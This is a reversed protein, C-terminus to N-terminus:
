YFRSKETRIRLIARDLPFYNLELGENDNITPIGQVEQAQYVAMVNYVEDGVIGKCGGGRIVGRIGFIRWNNGL